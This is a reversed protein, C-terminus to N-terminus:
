LLSLALLARPLADMKLSHVIANDKSQAAARSRESSATCTAHATRVIFAARWLARLATAWIFRLPIQPFVSEQIERLRDQACDFPEM